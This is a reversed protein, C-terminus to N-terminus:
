TWFRIGLRGQGHSVSRHRKVRVRGMNLALKEFKSRRIIMQAINPIHPENQSRARKTDGDDDVTMNRYHVHQQEGLELVHM